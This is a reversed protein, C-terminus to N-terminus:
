QIELYENHDDVPIEKESESEPDDPEDLPATSRPETNSENFRSNLLMLSEESLYERGHRAESLLRMFAEADEAAGDVRQIQDLKIKEFQDFQSMNVFM